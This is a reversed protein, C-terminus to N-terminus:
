SVFQTYIREWEETKYPSYAETVWYRIQDSFLSENYIIRIHSLFRDRSDYTKQDQSALENALQLCSSYGYRREVQEKFGSLTELMAIAQQKLAQHKGYKAVWLSRVINNIVPQPHSSLFLTAGNHAGVFGIHQSLHCMRCMPILNSKDQNTHNGDLHHVETYKESRFGCAACTFNNDKLIGPRASLFAKDSFLADPNDTRSLGRSVSLVLDM